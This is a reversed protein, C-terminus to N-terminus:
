FSVTQQVDSETAVEVVVSYTPPDQENDRDTAVLFEATDPFVIAAKSSLLPGLEKTINPYASSLNVLFFFAIAVSRLFSKSLLSMKNSQSSVYLASSNIGLKHFHKFSFANRM